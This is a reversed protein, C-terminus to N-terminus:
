KRNLEVEENKKSSNRQEEGVTYQVSPPEDELAMDKQRKMSNMHNELCSYQFPKGNGEETSWMRDSRKVMVWGDQIAGHAHSLKMSNSLASTWTILNASRNLETM